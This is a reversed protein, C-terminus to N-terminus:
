RSRPLNRRDHQSVRAVSLRPERQEAPVLYLQQHERAVEPQDGKDTIAAYRSRMM